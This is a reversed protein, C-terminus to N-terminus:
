EFLHIQGKSVKAKDEQDVNYNHVQKAWKAFYETIKNYISPEYRFFESAEPRGKYELNVTFPIRVDERVKELVPNVINVIFKRDVQFDTGGPFSVNIEFSRSMVNALSKSIFERFIYYSNSPISSYKSEIIKDLNIGFIEKMIEELISDEVNEQILNKSKDLLTNFDKYQLIYEIKRINPIIMTVKKGKSIITIYGLGELKKLSRQFSGGGYTDRAGKSM